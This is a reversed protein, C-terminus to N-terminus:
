PYRARLENLVALSDATIGSGNISQSSSPTEDENEDEILSKLTNDFTRANEIVLDLNAQQSPRPLADLIETQNAPSEKMM